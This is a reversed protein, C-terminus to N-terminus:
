NEPILIFSGDEQTQRKYVDVSPMKTILSVDAHILVCPQHMMQLYCCGIHVIYRYRWLQEGALFLIDITVGPIKTSPSTFICNGMVVFALFDAVFDIM